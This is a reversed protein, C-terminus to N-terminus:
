VEIPGLLEAPAIANIGRKALAAIAADPDSFQFVLVARGNVRGGTTVGAFAYMYEIAQHASDLADLVMLLGGPRQPVEIAVVETVKVIFGAAALVQQGRKWDAVILRLIGFAETDALTLSLLDIGANALARCPPRLSGPRNEIFLSLQHIKM